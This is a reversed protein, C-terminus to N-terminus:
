NSDNSQLNERIKVRQFKDKEDVSVTDIRDPHVEMMIKRWLRKKWAPMNQSGM